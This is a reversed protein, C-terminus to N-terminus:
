LIRYINVPFIGFPNKLKIHYRLILGAMNDEDINKDLTQLNPNIVIWQCM